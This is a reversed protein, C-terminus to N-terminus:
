DEKVCALQQRTGPWGRSGPRSLRVDARDVVTPQRREHSPQDEDSAGIYQSRDNRRMGVGADDIELMSEADHRSEDVRMRMRCKGPVPTRLEAPTEGTFGVRLNGSTAATDDRRYTRRSRRRYGLDHVVGAGPEVLHERAARRGALDLAPVPQGDLRLQFQKARDALELLGMGDRNLRGKQPRVLNRELISGSSGLVDIEDDVLHNWGHRRFPQGLPAVHEAFLADERGVLGKSDQSRAEIRAQLRADV